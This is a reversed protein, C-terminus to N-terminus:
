VGEVPRCTGRKVLTSGLKVIPLMALPKEFKKYLQSILERGIAEVDIKVTTLPPATFAAYDEDNFGILSVARPVSINRDNLAKWAGLAAEDYGAFIATIENEKELAMEVSLYGNSYFNDSLSKTQAITPLGSEQLARIYGEYIASFWKINPDGIFLIEKHGLDVLYKTADYAGQYGDFCVADGSPEGDSFNNGLLISPITLKELAALFNPYTPGTMIVGDPYLRSKGPFAPEFLDAVNLDDPDTEPSYRFTRFLVADGHRSCEQEVAQLVKSHFPINLSRNALVFYILRAGSERVRKKGLAPDYNLERFAEEIRVRTRPNIGPYNNLVRSVSSMSVGARKAVEKITVKRAALGNTKM